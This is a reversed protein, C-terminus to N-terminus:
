APTQPEAEAGFALLRIRFHCNEAGTAITEVTEVDVPTNAVKEFLYRVWAAGCVCLKQDLRIVGRKVLPCVCGDPHLEVWDIVDGDRRIDIQSPGTYRIRALFEDLDMTEPLGYLQLYAAGCAHAQREMLDKLPQGELSYVGEYLGATIKDQFDRILSMVWDPITAPTGM